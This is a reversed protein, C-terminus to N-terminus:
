PRLVLGHMIVLVSGRGSLSDRGGTGLPAGGGEVVPPSESDSLTASAAVTHEASSATM